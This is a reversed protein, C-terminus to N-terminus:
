PGGVAVDAEFSYKEGLVAGHFEGAEPVSVDPTEPAFAGDVRGTMTTVTVVVCMGCPSIGM